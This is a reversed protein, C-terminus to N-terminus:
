REHNVKQVVDELAALTQQATKEWSFRAVQKKGKEILQTRLKKSELLEKMKKAIDQSNEPDVYLVADGGAEPLSSVNSTIVPCDYKMAELIPLGFGEYLSPLVYAIANKYLVPLQDDSVSDLFKVREEVGFKRPAELIEEYLWGRKGVIVLLTKSEDSAAPVMSFAEILRVINKRPQLTGVFLFYPSSIAFTSQLMHIPYVQPTLSAFSKVGPYTVVVKEEPVRYIRIIDRKSAKSITFIVSARAASYATWNTLQYLDKKRFLEPFYHYSLDMISIATPVPSFRPAYHSPSFFIDPKQKKLRLHVPLAIQTWFPKPGFIHYKWSSSSRPLESSPPQKLYIEFRASAPKRNLGSYDKHYIREFETLLQFAYEGIGVRGIVNAENGDVGIIM